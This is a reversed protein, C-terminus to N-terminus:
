EGGLVAWVEELAFKGKLTSYKFREAFFSKYIWIKDLIVQNEHKIELTTLFASILRM